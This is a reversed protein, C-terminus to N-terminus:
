FGERWFRFFDKVKGFFLLRCGYLIGAGAKKVEAAIHTIQEESEVSCPGAIIQFNDGGIKRGAIDIVTDDPHFKRNANKFPERIRKVTEVFDLSSLMDEDLESTDGILGLITQYTGRSLHTEVGMGKLWAILNDIQAKSASEKLVLIM